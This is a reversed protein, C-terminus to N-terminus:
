EARPERKEVGGRLALLLGGVTVVVGEGSKERDDLSLDLQMIPWLSFDRSNELTVTRRGVRGGRSRLGHAGMVAALRRSWRRRCVGGVSLEWM